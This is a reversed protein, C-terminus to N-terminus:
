KPIEHMFKVFGMMASVVAVLVVLRGGFITVVTGTRPGGVAESTGPAGITKLLAGKWVGRSCDAVETALFIMSGLLALLPLVLLLVLPPLRRGLSSTLLALNRSQGCFLLLLLLLLLLVEGLHLLMLWQLVVRNRRRRVRLVGCSEM